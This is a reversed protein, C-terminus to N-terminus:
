TWKHRSAQSVWSEEFKVCEFSCIPRRFRPEGLSLFVFFGKPPEQFYPRIFNMNESGEIVPASM